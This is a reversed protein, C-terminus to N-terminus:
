AAHASGVEGSGAHRPKLLFAVAAAVLFHEPALYSVGLPLLTVDAFFLFMIFTAPHSATKLKLAFSKAFAAAVAAWAMLYFIAFRGFDAYQIGIGFDPSGIGEWDAIFFYRGTLKLFGYDKPKDPFLVRPVRAYFATEAAIRGHSLPLDPDDIVMVANRTHDAYQSLSLLLEAPTNLVFFSGVGLVSVLGFYFIALRFNVRNGLVYVRYM